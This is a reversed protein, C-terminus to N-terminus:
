NTCSKENELVARLKRFIDKSVSATAPILKGEDTDIVRADWVIDKGIDEFIQSHRFLYAAMLLTQRNDINKLRELQSVWVYSAPHLADFLDYKDALWAITGLVDLSIGFVKEENRHHLVLCVIELAGSDDEPLAVEAKGRSSLEAGESFRPSLLAKFVPSARSLIVSHM